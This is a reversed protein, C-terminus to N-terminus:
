PTQKNATQKNATLNSNNATDTDVQHHQRTVTEVESTDTQQRDTPTQRTAPTQRDKWKYTGGFRHEPVCARTVSILTTLNCPGRPQLTSVSLM